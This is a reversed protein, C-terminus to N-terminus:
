AADRDPRVAQVYHLLPLDGQGTTRLGAAAALDAIPAPAHHRM